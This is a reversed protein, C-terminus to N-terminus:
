SKARNFYPRVIRNLLSPFHQGMKVGWYTQGKPWCVREDKQICQFVRDAWQKAPISSMFKLDLHDSYFQPIEDFMRTKVGPTVMTLTSVSTGELENALSETFAIVGAKSAAYTSACPFFMMGSVSANNVIKAESLKLMEPLLNRTLHILGLLNVQLMQYIKDISQDELLGGTLQGANNVLLDVSVGSTKIEQVVSEISEKQSLDVIWTRVSAAGRKQIDKVCDENPSRILLHVNMGFEGAKKALALGIGRNAGTIFINKSKLEM